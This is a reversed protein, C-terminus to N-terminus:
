TGFILTLNQGKDKPAYRLSINTKFSQLHIYSGLCQSTIQLLSHFSVSLVFLHIKHIPVLESNQSLKGNDVVNLM